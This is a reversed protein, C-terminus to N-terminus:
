KMEHNVEALIFVTEGIVRCIENYLVDSKEKYM